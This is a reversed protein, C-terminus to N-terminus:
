EEARVHYEVLAANNQEHGEEIADIHDIVLMATYNGPTYCPWDWHLGNATGPPPVDFVCGAESDRREPGNVVLRMGYCEDSGETGQNQIEVRIGVRGVVPDDSDCRFGVPVLDIGRVGTQEVPMSAPVSVRVDGTVHIAEADM